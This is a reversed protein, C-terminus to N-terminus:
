HICVLVVFAGVKVTDDMVRLLTESQKQFINLLTNNQEQLMYIQEELSHIQEQMHENHERVDAIEQALQSNQEQYDMRLMDLHGKANAWDNTSYPTSSNTTSKDHASKNYGAPNM